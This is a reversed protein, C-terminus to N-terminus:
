NFSICRKFFLIM